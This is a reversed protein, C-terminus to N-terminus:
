VYEMLVSGSRVRVSLIVQERTHNGTVIRAWGTAAVAGLALIILLPTDLEGLALLGDVITDIIATHGSIKTYVLNVLFQPAVWIWICSVLWYGLM